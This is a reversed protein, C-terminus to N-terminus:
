HRAAPSGTLPAFTAVVIIPHSRLVVALGSGLSM